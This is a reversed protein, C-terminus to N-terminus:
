VESVLLRWLGPRGGLGSPQSNFMRRPSRRHLCMRVSVAGPANPSVKNVVALLQFCGLRGDASPISLCVMAICVISYSEASVLLSSNICVAVQVFRLAM